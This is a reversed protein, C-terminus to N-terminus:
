PVSATMELLREFVERSPKHDLVLDIEGDPLSRWKEDLTITRYNKEIWQKHESSYMEKWYDSNLVWNRVSDQWMHMFTGTNGGATHIRDGFRWPEVMGPEYDLGLLSHCLLKLCSEPKSALDEYYLPFLPIRHDNCLELVGSYRRAYDDCADAISSNHHVKASAYYAAPRKFLVILGHVLFSRALMESFVQHSKFSHVVVTKGPDYRVIREYLTDLDGADCQARFEATWFDCEVHHMACYNGQYQNGDLRRYVHFIRHAEGSSFIQTHSGLLIGLLTSGSFDCGAIAYIQLGAERNM